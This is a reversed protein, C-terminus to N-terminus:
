NKKVAASYMPRKILISYLNNSNNDNNNNNYKNNHDM